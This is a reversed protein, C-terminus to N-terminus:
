KPFESELDLLDSPILIVAENYICHPVSNKQADVVFVWDDVVLKVDKVIGGPTNAALICYKDGRPLEAVQYLKGTKVTM